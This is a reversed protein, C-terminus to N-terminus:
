TQKRACEGAQEGECEEAQQSEHGIANEREAKITQGESQTFLYVCLDHVAAKTV